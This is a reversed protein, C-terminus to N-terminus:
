EDGEMLKENESIVRAVDVIMQGEPLDFLKVGRTDRGLVRTESIRTRITQGGDTILVIGDEQEVPFCGLLDGTLVNFNGIRVGSAGRATVRFDHTSFRKGYGKTTVTLLFRETKKMEQMREPSLTFVQEVGDDDKWKYTGDQFFAEREQSTADSHTIITAAIVSDGTKLLIGRNGTSNRGKFIRIDTVSFRAAQGRKTALVLDDDEGCELVDVLRDTSNGMEDELRMAIKGGKNVNSFDNVSNRRVEGHDTIFMLYRDNKEGDGLDGVPAEMVTAITEGPRLQIFNNLFRGRANPATEPIKYAKLVHAIGRSTFFLLNTRTNCILTKMVVDDDKTDMGARGKGGRAQERYADLATIKIYGKRTLTLVVPKSEVFDDESLDDPGTAELRTKRPTAFRRKVDSIEEVMVADLVEPNQLINDLEAIIKLLKRATEAIKDQELATLSRIQLSLVFGAQEASMHFEEPQEADPDTEFLLTAFEGTVPFPIAVLKAIATDVDQSNRAIKIVEDLSTRAAFLALQKVLDNRAKEVRFATRREIVSRRFAIFEHLMELLGMPRPQRRSDLCTGNYSFNQSIATKKKFQNLVLIPDADKKLDIVIRVDKKSEDQINSVGDITKDNALEIMSEVLVKKNVAFPLETIIISM